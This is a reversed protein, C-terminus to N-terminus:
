YAAIVVANAGVAEKVFVVVTAVAGVAVAAAVTTLLTSYGFTLL